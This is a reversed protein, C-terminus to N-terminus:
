KGTFLKPTIQKFHAEKNPSQLLLANAYKENRLLSFLFFGAFFPINRVRRLSCKRQIPGLSSCGIILQQVLTPLNAFNLSAWVQFHGTLWKYIVAHFISFLSLSTFCRCSQATGCDHSLKRGYKRDLFIFWAAAASFDADEWCCSCCWKRESEIKELQRQSICKMRWIPSSRALSTAM